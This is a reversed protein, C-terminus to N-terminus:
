HRFDAVVNLCALKAENYNNARVHVLFRAQLSSVFARLSATSLSSPYNLFSVKPVEKPLTVTQTVQLNDNLM